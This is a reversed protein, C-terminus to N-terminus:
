GSRFIEPWLPGVEAAPDEATVIHLPCSSLRQSSLGEAFMADTEAFLYRFLPVFIEDPNQIKEIESETMSLNDQEGGEARVGWPAGWPSGGYETNQITYSM